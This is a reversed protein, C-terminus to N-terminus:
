FNKLQFEKYNLISSWWHGLSNCVGMTWTQWNQSWWKLEFMWSVLSRWILSVYSTAVGVGFTGDCFRRKKFQECKTTLFGLPQETRGRWSQFQPPHGNSTRGGRRRPSCRLPTPGERGLPVPRGPLPSFFDTAHTHFWTPLFNCSVFRCVSEYICSRWPYDSLGLCNM